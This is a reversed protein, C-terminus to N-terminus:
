SALNVTVIFGDKNNGSIEYKKTEPVPIKTMDGAAPVYYISYNAANGEGQFPNTYYRYNKLFEIYEELCLKLNKMNEAHPVGVYRIHWPENGIGTEKKKEEQYRVIFGYRYCNETIWSYIGTGDYVASSGNGDYLGMDIALGTHHESRDPKAVFIDTDENIHQVTSEYHLKEQMEFSRYGSMIGLDNEENEAEFDKVMLNFAELAEKQLTVENSKVKYLGENNEVVNMLELDDYKRLPCAENVLILKGKQLADKTIMDIGEETNNGIKETQEKTSTKETDAALKQKADAAVSQAADKHTVLGIFLKVMCIMLLIGIILCTIRKIMLQQRKKKRRAMRQRKREREIATEDM